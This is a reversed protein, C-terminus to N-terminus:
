WVFFCFLVTIKLQDRRKKSLKETNTRTIAASIQDRNAISLLLDKNPLSSAM